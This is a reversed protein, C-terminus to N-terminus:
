ITTDGYSGGYKNNNLWLNSNDWALGAAGDNNLQFQQQVIGNSTDIQLLLQNTRDSVWLSNGDFSLGSAYNTNIPITKLVSGDLLSIKYILSDNSAQWLCMGDFAIDNTSTTPSPISKIIVPNNSKISKLKQFSENKSKKQYSDTVNGSEDVNQAFTLNAIFCITLLNIIRKM